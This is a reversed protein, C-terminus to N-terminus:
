RMGGSRADRTAPRRVGGRRPNRCRAGRRHGRDTATAACRMTTACARMAAASWMAAAARM